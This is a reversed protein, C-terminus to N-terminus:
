IHAGSEKYGVDDDTAGNKKRPIMPTEDSAIFLNYYIM